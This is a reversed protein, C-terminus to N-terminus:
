MTSYIERKTVCFFFAIVEDSEIVGAGAKINNIIFFAMGYYCLKVITEKNSQQFCGM